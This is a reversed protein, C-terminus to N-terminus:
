LSIEAPNIKERVYQNTEEYKKISKISIMKGYIVEKYQTSSVRILPWNSLIIKYIQNMTGSISIHNTFM